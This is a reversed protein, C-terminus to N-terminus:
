ALKKAKTKPLEMTDTRGLLFDISVNLRDAIGAVHHLDLTKLGYALAGILRRGGLGFSAFLEVPTVGRAKCAADLREPFLDNDTGVFGSHGQVNHQISAQLEGTEVLPTDGNRKRAITAPKLPVFGYRYNGMGAKAEDEIIECAEEIAARNMEELESHLIALKAIFGGLSLFDAM